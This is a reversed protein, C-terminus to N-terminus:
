KDWTRGIHVDVEIPINPLLSKGADIMANRLIEAVQPSDDAQCEVVLEDHVANILWADPYAQLQPWLLGMALKTMDASSGQIPMNKAIREAQSRGSPSDIADFYLRRGTLTEAYGRGLSFRSANDLFKKIKPFTRFYGLLLREAQPRPIGLNKALGGAGMGYVLGFNVAKARHRLESNETKSVPKNWLTSAVRSHLDDGNAFAEHFVPDESMQALIRLECTAYDAVILRRHPLCRLCDRHQSKKLVAQLNPSHCAMRGTSAGIQEFTPHLRGDQGLTELFSEGYTSVIKALERYRLLWPGLPPPIKQLSEKKVNQLPHGLQKLASLLDANSDLNLTTSGFLDHPLHQELEKLIRKSTLQKEAQAQKTLQRWKDSEICMGRHEMEAIPAIAAAEIKSVWTLQAQKIQPIQAAVIAAILQTHEGIAEISQHPDPPSALNYRKAIAELSLDVDRGGALLRESLTICAWRAPGIGFHELLIRHHKKANHACLLGHTHLHEGLQPTASVDIILSQEQSALVAIRPPQGEYTAPDFALAPISSAHLFLEKVSNEAEKGRILQTM